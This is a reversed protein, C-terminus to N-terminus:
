SLYIDSFEIATAQILRNDALEKMMPEEEEEVALQDPLLLTFCSGKGVESRVSIKGELVDALMKVLSLGIGTGEAQRTLSSDVQGFREFIEEQKEKPIGMGKDRVDIRLSNKSHSLKVLVEKGEPSFKIANSLLNLLIREYKEEDIGIVRDNFASSFKLTIAKQGAYLSVSEVIAKTLFVIDLNKKHIKLRGAQVRTIDLLNNVLRLQRFANQRISRIYRKARLSLEDRCLLEMAQVASNIVNLPTKFEHSITSLFEDKMIIMKELLQNKEIEYRLLNKQQEKIEDGKEVYETVDRMCMVAMRVQGNEDLIPSGSINVYKTGDARKCVLRKSNVREGSLVTKSPFNEETVANRNEDFFSFLEFLDHIKRSNGSQCFFNKASENIMNIENNPTVTFLGDSMNELIAEVEKNQRLIMEENRIQKTIDRTCIIGMFFNGENDFIPTGSVDIYMTKDPQKAVIRASTFKEGRLVRKPPFDDFSIRSGTIDLYEAEHYTDGVNKLNEIVPFLSKKAEENFFVYKGDRDFISIGDSMNEIVTQFLEKQQWIIGVKEALQKKMLIENTVESSYIYLYKLSGKEFVPTITSDWYTRGRSFGDYEKGKIYCPKQTMLVGAWIEEFTSGAWSGAIEGVPRGISNEPKCFPEDLFGLYKDNAKLLILDPVSYVAIGVENQYFQQEMFAFGQGLLSDPKRNLTYVQEDTSQGYNLTIYVEEVVHSKTFLYWPGTTKGAELEHVPIKMRLLGNMVDTTTKGCIEQKSFGTYEFFNNDVEVVVGRSIVLDTRYKIGKANIVTTLTECRVPLNFMLGYIDICASM